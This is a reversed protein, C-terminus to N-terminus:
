IEAKIKETVINTLEIYERETMSKSPILYNEKESLLYIFLDNIEAPKFDTWKEITKEHEQIIEFSTDTLILRHSKIKEVGDLYKKVKSRRKFIEYAKIM